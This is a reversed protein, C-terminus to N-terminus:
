GGRTLSPRACTNAHRSTNCPPPAHTCRRPTMAATQHTKLHPQPPTTDRPHPLDPQTVHRCKHDEPDEHPPPTHKMMSRTATTTVHHCKPRRPSTTPAHTPPPHAPTGTTPTLVTEAKDTDNPPPSTTPTTNSPRNDNRPQMRNDIPPGRCANNTTTRTHVITPAPAGASSRTMGRQELPTAAPGPHGQRGKEAVTQHLGSSELQVETWHHGRQLVNYWVLANGFRKRLFGEVVLKYGQKALFTEVMDTWGTNNPAVHLFLTSVFDLVKFDVALTPELPALAFCGCQILQRPAPLCPCITLITKELNDVHVVIVEIDHGPMGCTCPQQPIPPMERLSKSSTYEMYLGILRPVLVGWNRWQVDRKRRHRSIPPDVIDGYDLFPNDDEPHATPSPDVAPRIRPPLYRNQALAQGCQLFILAPMKGGRTPIANQPRAFPTYLPTPPREKLLDKKKLRPIMWLLECHVLGRISTWQVVDVYQFTM